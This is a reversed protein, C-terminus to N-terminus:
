VEKTKLNIRLIKQTNSSIKFDESIRHGVVWAIGSTSEMVFIQNREPVAVKRESLLDSIKKNGNLGLPRFTDGPQWTRFLWETGIKDADFCAELASDAPFTEPRKQILRSFVTLGIEQILVRKGLKCKYIKFCRNNKSKRALIGQSTRWAEFKEPLKIRKGPQMEVLRLLSKIHYSCPRNIFRAIFELLVYNPYSLPQRLDLFFYNNDTKTITRNAEAVVKSELFGWKESATKALNMLKDEIGSYERIAKPLLSHRITNRLYKKDNNSKDTRFPIKNEQVYYEIEKRSLCLVPRIIGDSRKALIGRLGRLGTGKMIRMFVTEIQDSKTHGTAIIDADCKSKIKHLFSYRIKRAHNELSEGKPLNSKIDVKDVYCEIGWEDCIKRVFASDKESDGNRLMHNLHAAAVNISYKERLSNFIHLLAMSDPGGSVAILVKQGYVLLQKEQIFSEVTKIIRKM